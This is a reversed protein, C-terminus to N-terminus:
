PLMYKYEVSATKEQFQKAHRNKEPMVLTDTEKKKKKQFYLQYHNTSTVGHNM